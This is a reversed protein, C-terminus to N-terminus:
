LYRAVWSLQFKRRNDYNKKPIKVTLELQFNDDEIVKDEESSDLNELMVMDNDTAVDALGDSALATAEIGGDDIRTGGENQVHPIPTLLKVALNSCPIVGQQQLKRCKVPLCISHLLRMQGDGDNASSAISSRASRINFIEIWGRSAFPPLVM